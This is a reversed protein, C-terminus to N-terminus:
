RGAVAFMVAGYVVVATLIVLWAGLAVAVRESFRSM